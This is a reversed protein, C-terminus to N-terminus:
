EGIELARQMMQKAANVVKVNAEYARTSLIMSTMEESLNVNPYEVYGDENAHPHAPNHVLRPAVNQEEVRINQVGSFEPGGELGNYVQEFQGVAGEAVVRVPKYLEGNESRTTNANAINAAVADLKMKQLQMGSGSVSLVELYDM